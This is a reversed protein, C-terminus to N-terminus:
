IANGHTRIFAAEADKAAASLALGDGEGTDAYHQWEDQAKRWADYTPGYRQAYTSSRNQELMM